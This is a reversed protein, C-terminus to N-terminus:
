EGTQEWKTVIFRGYPGGKEPRYDGVGIRSGGETLLQAITDAGLVGEDVQLRFAMRWADFRPRYRMIRGKTAPITAPRADVEFETQPKGKETLITIDEDLVIVAAPVIYKLSKRSGRQKHGSGAERLLRAFAAGPFFCSGDERRYAANEAQELPTLDQLKVPRSEGKPGTSVEANETFRHVLLAAIGQVEVDFTRIDM